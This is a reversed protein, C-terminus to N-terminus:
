DRWNGTEGNTLAAVASDKGGEGGASRSSPSSAASPRSSTPCPLAGSSYRSSSSIAWAWVCQPQVRLSSHRLNCHCHASPGHAHSIVWCCCFGLLAHPPARRTSFAAGSHQVRALDEPPAPARCHPTAWMCAAWSFPPPGDFSALLCACVAPRRPNHPLSASPPPPPPRPASPPDAYGLRSSSPSCRGVECGLCAPVNFFACPMCALLGGRSQEARRLKWLGVEVIDEEEAERRGARTGGRGWGEAVAESAVSANDEPGALEGETGMPVTGASPPTQLTLEALLSQDCVSVSSRRREAVLTIAAPDGAAATGAGPSTGVAPPSPAARPYVPDPVGAASTASAAPPARRLGFRGFRMLAGISRSHRRSAAPAPLAPPTPSLLPVSPTPSSSPSSRAPVLLPPPALPSLPGNTAAPHFITAGGHAAVTQADADAATDADAAAAALSLQAALPSSPVAEMTPPPLAALDGAFFPVVATTSLNGSDESSRRGGVRERLPASSLPSDVGGCPCSEATGSSQRRPSATRQSPPPFSPRRQAPPVLPPSPQGPPLSAVGADSPVMTPLLSPFKVTFYGPPRNPSSDSAAVAPVHSSPSTSSSAHVRRSRGHSAAPGNAAATSASSAPSPLAAPM